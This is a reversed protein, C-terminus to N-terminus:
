AHTGRAKGLCPLEDPPIDRLRRHKRDKDSVETPMMPWAIALAPDDWVLGREFQPAFFASCKYQFISDELAVFGHAFGCPIYLQKLGDASLEYSVHQGFTPSGRRIDVAVDFVRGRLVTVLKAQEQAIQYHLGRLTGARSFSLNDQVFECDIGLERYRRTSYTEAFLGRSDEFVDPEVLLVESIALPTVRM